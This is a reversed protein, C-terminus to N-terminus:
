LAQNLKPCHIVWRVVASFKDDEGVGVVVDDDDDGFVGIGLSYRGETKSESEFALKALALNAFIM